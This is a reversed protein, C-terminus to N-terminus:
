LSGSGLLKEVQCLAARERDKYSVEDIFVIPCIGKYGDLYMQKLKESNAMRERKSIEKRWGDQVFPVTPELFLILDYKNAYITAWALREITKIEKDFFPALKAFWLTAIADTDTFVVKGEAREFMLEEAAAHRHLIKIYDAPLMRTEGYCFECIERGLELQRRTKYHKALFETLTTKGTSEVGAILVRKRYWERFRPAIANWGTGLPFKQIATSSINDTEERGVYEVPCSYLREYINAGLYDSGAFVVDVPAGIQKMVYDRGIEWEEWSSNKTKLGDELLIVSARVGMDELTGRLWRYRLEVPIRDRCRSYSLVLYLNECVARAREIVHLHGKHLPDFAGGFMGVKYKSM